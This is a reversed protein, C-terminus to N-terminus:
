AEVRARQQAAERYNILLALAAGLMFVGAPAGIGAILAAMVALTLLLNLWFLQPRRLNVDNVALVPQLGQPSDPAARLRREECRGLWWAASFVFALGFLQVPI